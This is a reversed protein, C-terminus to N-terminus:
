PMSSWAVGGQSMIKAMTSDCVLSGEVETGIFREVEEESGGSYIDDEFM